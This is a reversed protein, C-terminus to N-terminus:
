KILVKKLACTFFSLVCLLYTIMNDNNTFFKTLLNNKIQTAAIYYNDYNEVESIWENISESAEAEEDDVLECCNDNYFYNKTVQSHVFLNAFTKKFVEVNNRPIDVLIQVNDIKPLKMDDTQDYGNLQKLLSIKHAM